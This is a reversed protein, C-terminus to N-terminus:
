LAACLRHETFAGPPPPLPPFSLRGYDLGKQTIRAVIGPNTTETVATGLAALVMLAAWRPTNDPGRAM